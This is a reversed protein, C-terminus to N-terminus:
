QKIGQSEKLKVEVTVVVNLLYLLQRAEPSMGVAGLTLFSWQKQFGSEQLM